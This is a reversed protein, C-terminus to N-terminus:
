AAHRPGSKHGNPKTDGPEKFTILDTEVAAQRTGGQPQEQVSWAAMMQRSSEACDTAAAQWFRMQASIFDQPGKCQALQNPFDMYASARKTALSTMAEMAQMNRKTVTEVTSAGSPGTLAPFSLAQRPSQESKVTEGTAQKIGTITANALVTQAQRMMTFMPGFMPGLPGTEIDRPEPLGPAKQEARM